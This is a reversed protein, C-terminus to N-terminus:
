SCHLPVHCLMAAVSENKECRVNAGLEHPLPQAFFLDTKVKVYVLTVLEMYVLHEQGRREGSDDHVVLANEKANNSHSLIRKTRRTTRLITCSFRGSYTQRWRAKWGSEPHFALHLCDHFTVCANSPVESEDFAQTVKWSEKRTWCHGLFTECSRCTMYLDWSVKQPMAAAVQRLRLDHWGAPESGVGFKDRWRLRKLITGQSFFVSTSRALTRTNSSFTSAWRRERVPELSRLEKRRGCDM